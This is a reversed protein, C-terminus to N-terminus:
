DIKKGSNIKQLLQAEKLTPILRFMYLLPLLSSTACIVKLYLYNDTNQKTVHVFTSNILLGIASRLFFQNLYIITISLSMMSSEVGTPVVKSVIIFSPFTSFGRELISAVSGGLIYLVVNPIGFQKNWQLVLGCNISEAM